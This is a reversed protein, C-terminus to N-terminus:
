PSVIIAWITIYSVIYTVLFVTFVLWNLGRLIRANQKNKEKKSKDNKKSEECEDCLDCNNCKSKVPTLEVQAEERTTDNNDEVKEKKKDIKEIVYIGTKLLWAPLDDKKDLYDKTLFYILALFALLIGVTFYVFVLPTTTSQTPFTSQIRVSYVALTLFITM